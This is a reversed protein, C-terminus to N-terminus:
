SLNYFSIRLGESRGMTFFADRPFVSGSSNQLAPFISSFTGESLANNENYPYVGFFCTEDFDTELSGTITEVIGTFKTVQEPQAATSVFRNGGDKGEGYFVSIADGPSWLIETMDEGGIQTKTSPGDARVAEFTLQVGESSQPATLQEQLCSTAGLAIILAAASLSFKNRRM